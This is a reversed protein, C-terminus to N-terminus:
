WALKIGFRKEFDEKNFKDGYYDRYLALMKEAKRKWYLNYRSKDSKDTDISVLRKNNMYDGLYLQTGYLTGTSAKVVQKNDESMLCPLVVHYKYEKGKGQEQEKLYKKGIRSFMMKVAHKSTNLKDGIQDLTWDGKYCMIAQKKDSSLDMSNYIYDLRDDFFRNNDSM